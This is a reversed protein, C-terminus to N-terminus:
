RLSGTKKNAYPLANGMKESCPTVSYGNGYHALSVRSQLM